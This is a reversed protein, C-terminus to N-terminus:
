ESVGSKYAAHNASPRFKKSVSWSQSLVEPVSKRARFHHHILARLLSLPDRGDRDNRVLFITDLNPIYVKLNEGCEFCLLLQKSELFIDATSLM